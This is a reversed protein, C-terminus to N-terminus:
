PSPLLSPSSFNVYLPAEYNKCRAFCFQTSSIFCFTIPQGHPVYPPTSFQLYPKLPNPRVPLCNPLRLCLHSFLFIINSGAVKTRVCFKTICIVSRYNFYVYAHTDHSSLCQWFLMLVSISICRLHCVTRCTFPRLWQNNAPLSVGSTTLIHTTASTSYYSFLMISTWVAAFTCVPCTFHESNKVYHL